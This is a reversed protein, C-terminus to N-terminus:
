EARLEQRGPAPAGATARSLVWKVVANTVLNAEVLGQPVQGARSNQTRLFDSHNYLRPSAGETFESIQRALASYSVGQEDVLPVIQSSLGLPSDRSTQRQRRSLPSTRRRLTFGVGTAWFRLLSM